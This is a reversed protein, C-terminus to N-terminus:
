VAQKSMKCVSVFEDDSLTLLKGRCFRFLVYLIPMREKVFWLNLLAHSYMNMRDVEDRVLELEVELAGAGRESIRVSKLFTVVDEHNNRRALDLSTDGGQTTHSVDANREVLYKVVDLHGSECANTLSTEGNQNSYVRICTRSTPILVSRAPVCM